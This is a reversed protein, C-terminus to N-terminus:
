WRLADHPIPDDDCSGRAIDPAFHEVNQGLAFKRDIVQRHQCRRTRGAVLDIEALGPALVLDLIDLM